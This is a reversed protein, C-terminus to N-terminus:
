AFMQDLADDPLHPAALYVYRLAARAVPSMFDPEPPWHRQMERRYRRLRNELSQVTCGNALKAIKPDRHTRLAMIADRYTQHPGCETAALVLLHNSKRNAM